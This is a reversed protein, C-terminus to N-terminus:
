PCQPPLGMVCCNVACSGVIGSCGGCIVCSAPNPTTLCTVCAVICGLASLPSIGWCAVCDWTCDFCSAQVRIVREGEVYYATLLKQKPEPISVAWGLAYEDYKNLLIYTISMYDAEGEIPLTAVIKTEKGGSAFRYVEIEEWLARDEKGTLLTSKLLQVDQNLFMREIVKEREQGLVPTAKPAGLSCSVPNMGRDSTAPAAMSLPTTLLIGALLLLSLIMKQKKYSM